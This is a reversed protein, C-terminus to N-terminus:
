IEFFFAVEASMQTCVQSKVFLLGLIPVRNKKTKKKKILDLIKGKSRTGDVIREKSCLTLIMRVM